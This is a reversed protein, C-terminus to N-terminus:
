SRESDSLRSEQANFHLKSYRKDQVVLTLRLFFFFPFSEGSISGVTRADHGEEKLSLNSFTPRAHHAALLVALPAALPAALLAALPM